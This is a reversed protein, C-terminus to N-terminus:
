RGVDFPGDTVLAFTSTTGLGQERMWKEFNELVTPFTSAKDVTEQDIGTLSTCFDSLKPQITPRVYERFTSLQEGTRGNVLVGPFEIIEHPFDVSNKEECTAEFDVVLYRDYGRTSAPLLGAERLLRTKYFQKLRQKVMDRKGTSDLGEERCLRKMSSLDLRNVLGNKRSIDKYVPHDFSTKDSVPPADEEKEELVKENTDDDKPFNLRAKCTKGENEKNDSSKHISPLKKPTHTGKKEKRAMDRAERDCMKVNGEKWELSESINNSLLSFM